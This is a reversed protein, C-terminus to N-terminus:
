VLCSETLCDLCKIAQKLQSYCQMDNNLTIEEESFTIQIEEEASAKKKIVPKKRPVDHIILSKIQLNRLFREM